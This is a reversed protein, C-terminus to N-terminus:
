PTLRIVTSLATKRAHRAYLCKWSLCKWAVASKMPNVTEISVWQSKTEMYKVSSEKFFIYFILNLWAFNMIQQACAVFKFIM